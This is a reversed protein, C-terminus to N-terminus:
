FKSADPCTTFHAVGAGESFSDPRQGGDVDCDVALRVTGPVAKGARIRGREIWYVQAQCSGEPLHHGKCITPNTGKPVTEWRPPRPPGGRMSSRKARQTDERLEADGEGFRDPM